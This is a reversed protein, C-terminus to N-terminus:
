FELERRVDKTTLKLSLNQLDSGGSESGSARPLKGHEVLGEFSSMM